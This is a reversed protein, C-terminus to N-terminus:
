KGGDKPKDKKSDSKSDDDKQETAINGRVAPKLGQPLGPVRRAMVEKLKAKQEDTLIKGLEENQQSEAQKLQNKLDTIKSSYESMLSSVKEKQEATLKLQSWYPPLHVKSKASQKDKSAPKDDAGLANGALLGGVVAVLTVLSRTM